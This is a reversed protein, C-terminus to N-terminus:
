AAKKATATTTNISKADRKSREVEVTAVIIDLQAKTLPSNVLYRLVKAKEIDLREEPTLANEQAELDAKKAAITAEHTEVAKVFDDFSTDNFTVGLEKCLKQAKGKAYVWASQKKDWQACVLHRYRPDLLTSVQRDSSALPNVNGNVMTYYALSLTNAESTVALSSLRSKLTSAKVLEITNM